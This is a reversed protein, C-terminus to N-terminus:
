LRARPVWLGATTGLGFAASNLNPFEVLVPFRREGLVKEIASPCSGAVVPNRLHAEWRPASFPRCMRNKPPTSIRYVFRTDRTRGRAPANSPWAGIRWSLPWIM